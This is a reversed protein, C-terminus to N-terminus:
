HFTGGQDAKGEEQQRECSLYPVVKDFFDEPLERIEKLSDLEKFPGHQDRYSLIRRALKWSIYPHAALSEVSCRNIDIKQVGKELKLFPRIQQFVSDALGYTERLQEVSTFGGLGDRFRVIRQSLVPGIGYLGQWEERGAQNIQIVKTAQRPRGERRAYRKGERSSYSPGSIRIFPELGIYLASDLGYIKLLDAKRRFQGGKERYRIITRATRPPLNMDLLSDLSVTNPDFPFPRLTDQQEQSNNLREVSAILTAKWDPQALSPRKLYKVIVSPFVLMSFCIFVLFLSARADGRSFYLLHLIWHKM